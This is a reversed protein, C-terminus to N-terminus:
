VTKEVKKARGNKRGWGVKGPPGQRCVAGGLWVNLGGAADAGFIAFGLAFAVNIKAAIQKGVGLSLGKPRM